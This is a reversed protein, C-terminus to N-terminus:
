EASEAIGLVPTATPLRSAPFWHEVVFRKGVPTWRETRDDNYTLVFASGQAMVRGRSKRLPEDVTAHGESDFMFIDTVEVVGNTFDVNWKGVPLTAELSTGPGPEKAPAIRSSGPVAVIVVGLFLLLLLRIM